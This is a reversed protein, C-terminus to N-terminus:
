NHRFGGTVVLQIGLLTGNYAMHMLVTIAVSKTAARVITLILGVMLIPTVAAWSYGLQAGHLLAFAISTFGVAIGVGTLRAMAPYLFGRFFLEEVFPAIFVAFASTVYASTPDQFFREMPVSPPTWRELAHALFGSLVAMGIGGAVTLYTKNARPAKWSIATFFDRRGRLRVLLVIFAVVLAYDVTQMPVLTVANQVANNLRLNHFGPFFRAVFLVVPASIGFAVISFAAAALADILNWPPNEPWPSAPRVGPAGQEVPSIPDPSM